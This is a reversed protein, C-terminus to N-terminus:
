GNDSRLTKIKKETQKEVLAKFDKFKEFTEDKTKMPYAFTKRTKDDIFTVFYRAGGISTQSMPGCVDSHIIELVESARTMSLNPFSKRHQKGKICAECFNLETKEDINIGEVM